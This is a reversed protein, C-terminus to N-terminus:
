SAHVPGEYFDFDCGQETSLFAVRRNLSTRIDDTFSLPRTSILLTAGSPLESTRLRDLLPAVEPAPDGNLIALRELIETGLKRSSMGAIVDPHSGALALTLYNVPQKCWEWCITAALSIARELPNDASASEKQKNPAYADLIVLLNESPTDEFERVILEGRRASTPWHIHRPSDGSRFQRVGHLESQASAHPAPRLHRAQGMSRTTQALFRRFLASHLRGLQPYVIRQERGGGHRRAEVLGFPAGSVAQPPEWIYPGRCPMPIDASERMQSRGDIRPSYWTLLHNSGRDELRIGHLPTTRLNELELELRAPSGAFLERDIWRRLRLRGVGRKAALVNVILAALMMAALFTLLNIGKIGGILWLFILLGLWLWGERTLSRTIRSDPPPSSSVSPGEM